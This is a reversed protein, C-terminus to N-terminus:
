FILLYFRSVNLIAIHKKMSGEVSIKLSENRFNCKDEYKGAGELNIKSIAFGIAGSLSGEVENRIENSSLEYEISIDLYSGMKVESVIHTADNQKLINQFQPKRLTEKIKYKM